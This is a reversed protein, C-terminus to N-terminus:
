RRQQGKDAERSDFRYPPNPDEVDVGFREAADRDVLEDLYHGIVVVLYFQLLLALIVAQTTASLAPLPFILTKRSEEITRPEFPLLSLRFESHPAFTRLRLRASKINNSGLLKCGTGRSRGFNSQRCWKRESVSQLTSVADFQTRSFSHKFSRGQTGGVSTLHRESACFRRLVCWLATSVGRTVPMNLVTLSYIAFLTNVLLHWQSSAFSACEACHLSLLASSSTSFRVWAIDYFWHVWM